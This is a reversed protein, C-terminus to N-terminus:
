MHITAATYRAEGRKWSWQSPRYRILLQGSSTHPNRYAYLMWIGLSTVLAIIFLIGIIGSIGMSVSQDGHVSNHERTSQIHNTQAASNSEGGVINNPPGDESVQSTFSVNSPAPPCHEMGSLASKDCGKYLWDQRYRDLGTSCRNAVPCWRCEFNTSMSLCSACDRQDVCTPLAHLVIVTWNMIEQRNFNV